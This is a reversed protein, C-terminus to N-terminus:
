TPPVNSFREKARRTANDTLKNVCVYVASVEAKGALCIM